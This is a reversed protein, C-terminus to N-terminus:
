LNDGHHYSWVGHKAIRLAAGRLIRFGFSIAVDLDYGRITEVADDPFWDSFKKMEPAVSVVPCSSLSEQVDVEEFADSEPVPTRADLRNYLAYLLFSRNKWYSRVRGRSSQHPAENKVVLCIQAIGSARIDNIINSVWRPQHFSDVLLGIRLPPK